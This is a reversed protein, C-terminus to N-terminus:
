TLTFREVAASPRLIHFIACFGDFGDPSQTHETIEEILTGLWVFGDCDLHNASLTKRELNNKEHKWLM